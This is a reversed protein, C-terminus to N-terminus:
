SLGTCRQERDAAARLPTRLSEGFRIACLTHSAESETVHRIAHLGVPSYESLSVAILELSTARNAFVSDEM